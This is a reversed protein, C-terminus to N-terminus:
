DERAEASLQDLMVHLAGITAFGEIHGSTYRSRSDDANCAIVVLGQLDGSLANSMLEDLTVMVNNNVMGAQPVPGGNLSVVKNNNEDSMM